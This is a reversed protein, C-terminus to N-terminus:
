FEVESLLLHKFKFYSWFSMVYNNCVQYLCTPTLHVSIQKYLQSVYSLCSSLWTCEWCSYGSRFCLLFYDGNVILLKKLWHSWLILSGVTMLASLSLTSTPRNTCHFSVSCVFKAIIREIFLSRRSRLLIPQFYKTHCMLLSPVTRM